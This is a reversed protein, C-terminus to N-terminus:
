MPLMGIAHLWWVIQDVTTHSRWCLQDDEAHIFQTLVLLVTTGLLRGNTLGILAAQSAARHIACLHYVQDVCLLVFCTILEAVM